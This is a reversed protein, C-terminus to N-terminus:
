VSSVAIVAHLFVREKDVLVGVRLRDRANLRTSLGKIDLDLDAIGGRVVKCAAVNATGEDLVGAGRADDAVELGNCVLQM